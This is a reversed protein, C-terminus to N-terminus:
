YVKINDIYYGAGGSVNSVRFAIHATGTYNSINIQGSGIFRYWETYTTPTIAQLKNWNASGIDLGNYDTSIFVELKSSGQLVLHHQASQFHLTRQTTGINIQSTILWAVADTASDNVLEAYGNGDYLQEAWLTTGTEAYNTFGPINLATNDEGDEFDELYVLPKYPPLSTENSCSTISTLVLTLLILYRM